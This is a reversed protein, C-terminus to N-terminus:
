IEDFDTWHSDFQRMRVSLRVSIIFTVTVKRLNASAGLLSSSRFFGVVRGELMDQSIYFYVDETKVTEM